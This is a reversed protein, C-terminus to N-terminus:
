RRSSSATPCTTSRRSARSWSTPPRCGRSTSSSTRASAASSWTTRTSASMPSSSVAFASFEGDLGGILSIDGSGAEEQARVQQNFPGPEAGIFNVTGDFGALIENRMAEQEATPVLQSSIMVVEGADAGNGNGNGPDGDTPDTGPTAADDGPACAAVVLALSALLALLRWPRMRVDTRM